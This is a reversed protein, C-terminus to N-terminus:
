LTCSSPIDVIISGIFVKAFFMKWISDHADENEYKKYKRGQKEKKEIWHAAELFVATSVSDVGNM